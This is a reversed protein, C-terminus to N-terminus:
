RSSRMVTWGQQDVRRWGGVTWWDWNVVTELDCVAREPLSYRLQLVFL